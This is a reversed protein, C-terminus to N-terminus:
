NPIISSIKTRILDIAVPNEGGEPIIIDAFLKSPEVFQSHMSRFTSLYQDIVSQTSREREVRDRTLRRIFRIDTPTEIYIKINMLNRLATNALVMIGEIVIVHHPKITRKESLRSHTSFDYIPIQVMGWNILSKLDQKMLEFEFADPHDFNQQNRKELPMTSLDRYYSDQEIVVVEGPGYEKLLARALSTKGSGTGGAIGILITKHKM